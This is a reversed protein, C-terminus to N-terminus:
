RREALMKWRALLKELFLQRNLNAKNDFQRRHQLLWDQWDLLESAQIRSALYGLVKDMDASSAAEQAGQNLKLLELTWAAFWDLLLDLAISNWQEALRPASIQGKLLAKVGEVVKERHAVAGQQHLDLARLPAGMAMQLLLTRQNDDVDPLEAGLWDRAQQLGPLGLPQVRCRSRITPLLRSPQDSILLLYTEATPEELSKLLANAANQNMAEAPHLVVVKRGGQQATQSIFGVLQRIADVRIAKGEEEPEILLLDPHSGAQRLLCSRCQQCPGQPGPQDCMLWGAFAAAFHRKGAGAAGCFLYAHAFQPQAALAAWLPEHWPLPTRAQELM